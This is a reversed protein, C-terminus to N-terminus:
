RLNKLRQISFFSPDLGVNFEISRQEVTTKHGEKDAPIVVLKSPLMRGGLEKIDRGYLTQVLEDDEDFFESKLENFREKDIWTVVRGWVVPADPKPILEIKYCDRGEVQEEGILKHDYDTLVSSEDVLDDNTFDSGMWSQSMMSPPLKVVRDIGPQYNWMDNNRKLYATGEDRPPSTILILSYDTGKSWSKIGIERTWTPRTITMTMEGRSSQGRRKEDAKRMIETADQAPLTSPILFLLMLYSLTKM